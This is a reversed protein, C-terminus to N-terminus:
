KNSTTAKNKKQCVGKHKEFYKIKTNTNLLGINVGDIFGNLISIVM